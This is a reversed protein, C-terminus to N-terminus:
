WVVRWSGGVRLGGALWPAISASMAGCCSSCGGAGDAAAAEGALFCGLAEGTAERPLSRTRPGPLWGCRGVPSHQLAPPTCPAQRRRCCPRRRTARKGQQKAARTRRGGGRGGWAGLAGGATGRRQGLLLDLDHALRPPAAGAVGITPAAPRRPARAHRCGAGGAWREGAGGGSWRRWGGAGAETGASGRLRVSFRTVLCNRSRWMTSACMLRRTRLPAPPRM